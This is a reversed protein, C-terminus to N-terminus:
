YRGRERLEMLIASSMLAHDLARMGDKVDMPDDPFMRGYAYRIGSNEESPASSRRWMPLRSCISPMVSVERTLDWPENVMYGYFVNRIDFSAASRGRLIDKVDMCVDEPPSGRAIDADTIGYRSAYEMKGPGWSSTDHAIVMSYISEVEMRGLDIGCIGIDVIEDRPFGDPGDSVVQIVCVDPDM